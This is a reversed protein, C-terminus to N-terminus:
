PTDKEVRTFVTPWVEELLREVLGEGILRELLGVFTTLVGVFADIISDRDQQEMASRLASLADDSSPEVALWAFHGSALVVSRKLLLQVGSDGLLRALHTALRGCTQVARDAVESPSTGEGALLARAARGFEPSVPNDALTPTEARRRRAPTIAHNRGRTLGYCTNRSCEDREREGAQQGSGAAARGRLRGGCLPPKRPM